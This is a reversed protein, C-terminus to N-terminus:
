RRMLKKARVYNGGKPALGVKLLAQRINDCENLALLLSEDTVKTKGNNINRGRWTPTISHCNPCLLRLNELRNDTSVGNIHDLELPIKQGFWESIGCNQCEDAFDFEERLIKRISSNSGTYTGDLLKTAAVEKSKATSKARAADDFKYM